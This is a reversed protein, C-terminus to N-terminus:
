EWSISGGVYCETGTWFPGEHVPKDVFDIALSERRELLEIVLDAPCQDRTHGPALIEVREVVDKTGGADGGPEPNEPVAAGPQPRPQTSSDPALFPLALLLFVGVSGAVIAATKGAASLSGGLGKVDKAGVRRRKGRRKEASPTGVWVLLLAAIVLVGSVAALAQVVGAPIDQRAGAQWPSGGSALAVLSVLLLGVATVAIM